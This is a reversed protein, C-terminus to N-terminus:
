KKKKITTTEGSLKQVQRNLNDLSLQLNNIEARTIPAEKVVPKDSLFSNIDVKLIKALEDLRTISPDTEGREIKAYAGATIQLKDAMDQQNLDKAQRIKRIRHGVQQAITTMPWIYWFPLNTDKLSMM